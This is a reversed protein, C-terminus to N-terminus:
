RQTREAPDKIGGGGRLLGQARPTYGTQRHQQVVHQEQTNTHWGM